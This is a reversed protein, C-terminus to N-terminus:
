TASTAGAPASWAHHHARGMGVRTKADRINGHRATQGAHMENESRVIDGRQAPQGADAHGLAYLDVRRGIWHQYEVHDAVDSISESEDHGVDDLLRFVGGLRYQDVPFRQGMHDAGEIRQSGARRWHPRFAGAVDGELRRETVLTRCCICECCRGLDNRLTTL